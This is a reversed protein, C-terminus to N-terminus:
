RYFEVSLDMQWREMNSDDFSAEGESGSVIRAQVTSASVHDPFDFWGGAQANSWDLFSLYDGVSAFLVTFKQTILRRTTRRVQKPPGVEFDSREINNECSEVWGVRAILATTPWTAM